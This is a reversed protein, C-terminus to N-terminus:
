FFPVPTVKLSMVEMSFLLFFLVPESSILPISVYVCV